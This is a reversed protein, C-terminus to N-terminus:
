LIEYIAEAHSLVLSDPLKIGSDAFCDKIHHILYM